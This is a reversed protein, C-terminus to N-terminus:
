LSLWRQTSLQVLRHVEFSEGGKETKILSYAQLTGVAKDFEINREHRQKLLTKPIAQRDLLVMISLLEAARPKQKAIQDFSLKWTRIVSNESDPYRRPDPLGEELYDQLDLDSEKLREFYAQVTIGNEQIFAAAQTIALPIFGLMEVLDQISENDVNDGTPIRYRLLQEADLPALPLVVVVEERDILRHGIRTDRTTIIMSGNGNRPLFDSILPRHLKTASLSSEFFLDLNDANDLVLLWSQNELKNLWDRVIPLTDNQPEETGPISM